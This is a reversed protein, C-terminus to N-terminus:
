RRRGVRDVVRLWEAKRAAISAARRLISRHRGVREEGPEGPELLTSIRPGIKPGSGLRPRLGDARDVLEDAREVRARGVEVENLREILDDLLAPPVLASARGM